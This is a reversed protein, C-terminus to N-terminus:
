GELIELARDWAAWRTRQDDVISVDSLEGDNYRKELILLRQWEVEVQERITDIKKKMTANKM